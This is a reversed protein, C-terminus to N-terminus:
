FARSNVDEPNTKKRCFISTFVFTLNECFSEWTKNPYKTDMWLVFDTFSCCIFM